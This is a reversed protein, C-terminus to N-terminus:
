GVGFVFWFGVRSIEADFQARVDEVSMHVPPSSQHAMGITVSNLPIRSEVFGGPPLSASDRM